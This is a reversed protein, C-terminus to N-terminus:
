NLHHRCIEQGNTVNVKMYHPWVTHVTYNQGNLFFDIIGMDRLICRTTQAWLSNKTKKGGWFRTPIRSDDM